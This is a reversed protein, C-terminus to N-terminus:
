RLAAVALDTRDTVIGDAGLAILRKMEAPDNITWFHVELGRAHMARIFGKRDFRLFGQSVPVQVAALTRSLAATPLSLAALIRLLLVRSSGASAAVARPQLMRIAQDIRKQSFSAILVRPHAKLKRIVAVTPAVAAPEKLDLNFNVNGFVLLAEELSLLKGGNNLRLDKIEHWNVESLQRPDNAVALLNEDHLLVPVKDRTVRVDTELHTAGASIAAFFARTSNEDSGSRAFGRHALIRPKDGTLYSM